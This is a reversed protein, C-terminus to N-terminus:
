CRPGVPVLYEINAIRTATGAGSLTYRLVGAGGGDGGDVIRDLRVGDMSDVAMRIALTGATASNPYRMMSDQIVGLPTNLGGVPIYFSVFPGNTAWNTVATNNHTPTWCSNRNATTIPVSLQSIFRPYTYNSVGGSTYVGLRFGTIGNSIQSLKEATAAADRGSLFESLSPITAAALVAILVAAVAVEM